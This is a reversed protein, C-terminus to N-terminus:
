DERGGCAGVSACCAVAGRLLAERALGIGLRRSRCLCAPSWDRRNSEGVACACSTMSPSMPRWCDERSHSSGAGAELQRGDAGPVDAQCGAGASLCTAHREPYGPRGAIATPRAMHGPKRRRPHRAPAATRTRDRQRRPPKEPVSQGFFLRVSGHQPLASRPPDARRTSARLERRRAPISKKAHLEFKAPRRFCRCAIRLDTIRGPSPRSSM